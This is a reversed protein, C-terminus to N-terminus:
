KTRRKGIRDQQQIERRLEEMLNDVRKRHADGGPPPGSRGFYMEALNDLMTPLKVWPVSMIILGPPYVDLASMGLSLGTVAYNMEGSIVPYVYLWSCAMVPTLRSTIMEGTSYNLSRLLTQAQAISATIVLVDPDFSIRDLPAFVVYKVSGKLFRPLYRYQASCARAEKYLSVRHGFLGSVLVPEPDVMGLLMPEVCRLDEQGVFFPEGTTQAEKVMECMNLDKKIREVGEPTTPVFKIGVPTREFTFRDLASYSRGTGM